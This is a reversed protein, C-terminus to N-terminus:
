SADVPQSLLLDLRKKASDLDVYSWGNVGWEESSPYVERAPFTKGALVGSTHTREKVTRIRIVEYTTRGTDNAIVNFIAFHGERNRLAHTFGNRNLTNPLPQM